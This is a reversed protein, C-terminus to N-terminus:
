AQKNAPGIERHAKILQRLPEPQMKVFWLGAHQAVADQRRTDAGIEQFYGAVGDRFGDILDRIHVAVIDNRDLISAAQALDGVPATGWAYFVKRAKGRRSLDSDASFTHLIGCRAAYLETSTCPLARARLLYGDVWRIFATKPKEEPRRELSAIVDIGTYLLTLCPLFRRKELCEEISEILSIINQYLGDPM